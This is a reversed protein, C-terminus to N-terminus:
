LNVGCKESAWRTVRASRRDLDDFRENLENRLQDVEATSEAARESVSAQAQDKRLLDVIDLVGQSLEQMDSRIQDPAQAALTGLRRAQTSASDFDKHDLAKTLEGLDKVKSLQDCYEETRNSCATVGAGLAVLLVVVASRSPRRRKM